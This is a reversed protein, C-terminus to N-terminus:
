KSALPRAGKWLTGAIIAALAMSIPAPLKATVVRRDIIDLYARAKSVLHEQYSRRVHLGEDFALLIVGGVSFSNALRRHPRGHAKNRDLALGLLGAGDDEFCAIKEHTLSRLDDIGQTAMHRLEAHDNGLTRRMHLIKQFPDFIRGRIQRFRRTTGAQRQRRRQMRQGLLDFIQISFDGPARPLVFGGLPQNRDRPSPRHDGRREVAIAGGNSVNVRPGATEDADQSRLPCWARGQERERRASLDLARAASISGAAYGGNM